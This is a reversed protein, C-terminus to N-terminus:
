NLELGLILHCKVGTEWKHAHWTKINKQKNAKNQISSYHFKRFVLLKMKLTDISHKNHPFHHYDPNIDINATFVYLCTNKSVHVKEESSIM